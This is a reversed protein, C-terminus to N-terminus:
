RRGHSDFISFERQHAATPSHYRRAPQPTGCGVNILRAVAPHHLDIQGANTRVLQLHFNAVSDQADTATAAIRMKTFAKNVVLHLDSVATKFLRDLKRSRDLSSRKFAVVAVSKQNDFQM